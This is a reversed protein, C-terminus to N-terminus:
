RKRRYGWKIYKIKKSFKQSNLIRWCDIITTPRNRVFSDNIKKFKEDPTAIVWCSSRSLCDKVSKTYQIKDEFINKTNNIALPDYVAIKVKRKLLKTILKIAPSETIVPTNPKFALGLISVKKSKFPLNKMVLNFFHVDQFKNIKDVEKILRANIGLDGAFRIFSKTDRPFCTGGFSLGGKFYYPSIRKDIGITGTIKDVDAGPIKECINALVNVFSMKTTIYANLSVKAIEASILSMRAIVPKNKCLKRYIFSIQNGVYKDSEGILVFDPNLFNHIVNGLAVFDPVYGVGFGINIKRGSHREIIPILRRNISGPMLTSSIVFLHYKKGNKKLVKSLSELASEVYKNSFNGDPDSPTAVLIITIDTETIAEQINTTARFKKRFKTIFEQLKPEMIPSIGGNLSEVIKENIDVGITKFGRSAFCVALPLGLKGLGVLSIKKRNLSKKIM